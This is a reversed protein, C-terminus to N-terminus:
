GSELRGGGEEGGSEAAAERQVAVDGGGDVVSFSLRRESDCVGVSESVKWCGDGEWEGFGGWPAEEVSDSRSSGVFAHEEGGWESRCDGHGGRTEGRM